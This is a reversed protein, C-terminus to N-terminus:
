RRFRKKFDELYNFTAIVIKGNEVEATSIDEYEALMPKVTKQIYPVIKDKMKQVKLAVKNREREKSEKDKLLQMHENKMDEPIAALKSQNIENAIKTLELHMKEVEKVLADGKDTLEKPPIVAATIKKEKEEFRKIKIDLAEIERSIKRGGEVMVNKEVIFDHIKKNELTIVSM